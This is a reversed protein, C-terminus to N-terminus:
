EQRSMVGGRVNSFRTASVARYRGAIMSAEVLELLNGDKRVVAQEHSESLAPTATARRCQDFL